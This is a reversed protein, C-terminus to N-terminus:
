LDQFCNSLGAAFPPRLVGRETIIGSLLQHPTVDFAPNWTQAGLPGTRVGGFGLVEGGDRQEVPIHSGDPIAMDITSSPLATYFPINHYRALVALAYTGIKNAFDGNAAMRDCGVVVLDVKGQAMLAGAMDDCILTVPIRDQVLEYATLRAGQLLPRTEDAYVMSVKGQAHAARIVGLATGFGGTALAGANCHTLIRAGEPVLEAGARGMVANMQVDERHIAIAEEEMRGPDNGCALGCREMRDLAWFLNVATPRSAALLERARVMRAEGDPRGASQRAALVMAYAAAVGIAPAGRVVMTRIAQAVAQPDTYALWDEEAPLRTQDLLYLTHNEWRIAEM